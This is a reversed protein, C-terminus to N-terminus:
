DQLAPLAVGSAPALSVRRRTAAGEALREKAKINQTARQMKLPPLFTALWTENLEGFQSIDDFSALETRSRLSAAADRRVLPHGWLMNICDTYHQRDMATRQDHACSMTTTTACSPLKGEVSFICLAPSTSRCVKQEPGTKKTDAGVSGVLPGQRTEAWLSCILPVTPLTANHKSLRELVKFTRCSWM